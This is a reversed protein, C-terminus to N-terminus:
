SWLKRKKKLPPLNYCMDEYGTLDFKYSMGLMKAGELLICEASEIVFLARDIATEGSGDRFRIPFGYRREVGIEQLARNIEITIPFTGPWEYSDRYGWRAYLCRGEDSFEIDTFRIWWCARRENLKELLRRAVIGM